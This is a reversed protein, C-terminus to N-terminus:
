SLVSPVSTTLIKTRPWQAAQEKSMGKSTTWEVGGGRSELRFLTLMLRINICNLILGVQELRSRKMSPEEGGGGKEAM